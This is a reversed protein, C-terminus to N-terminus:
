IDDDGDISAIVYYEIWQPISRHIYHLCLARLITLPNLLWLFLLVDDRKM